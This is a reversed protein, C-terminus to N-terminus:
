VSHRRDTGFKRKNNEDVGDLRGGLYKLQKKTIKNSM